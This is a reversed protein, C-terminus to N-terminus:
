AIPRGLAAILPGLHAEYLKWRGIANGYLPRRVQAVSATNVARETKHFALCRPDWELRCHALLRRVERELDRVVDEYRIELFAASPLISRWHEMLRAQTRYFRGLQALDSAYPLRSGFSKTYCSLCTDFPHRVCHVILANPLALHILGALLANSLQKDVLRGRGIALPQTKALYDRGIDAFEGPQLCEIGSVFDSHHGRVSLATQLSRRLHVQEGLAAVDHHSALIQEVLTSGSRPMGVIFIPAEQACSARDSLQEVREKTFVREMQAIQALLTREDYAVSRREAENAIRFQEFALDYRGTDDYAKGLAFHLRPSASGAPVKSLREEMAEILPDNPRFSVLEALEFFATENGPELELVRRLATAAAAHQGCIKLANGTHLWVDPRDPALQAARSLEGLGDSVRNCLVLSRALLIIIDVDNPSIEVAQRAYVLAEEPRNQDLLVHALTAHAAPDIGARSLWRRAGREADGFRRLRRLSRILAKDVETEKPALSRARELYALADGDRGASSLMCGTFYLPEYRQPFQREARVLWDAAERPKGMQAATVSAELFADISGGTAAASRAFADLAEQHRGKKKLTLGLGFLAPANDSDATAIQRYAAEAAVLDGKQALGEALQLTDEIRM